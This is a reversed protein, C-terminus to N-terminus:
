RTRCSPWPSTPEVDWQKLGSSRNSKHTRSNSCITTLTGAFENGKCNLDRSSEAEPCRVDVTETHQNGDKKEFDLECRCTNNFANAQLSIMLITMLVTKM